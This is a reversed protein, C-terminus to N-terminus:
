SYNGERRPIERLYNTWYESEQSLKRQTMAYVTLVLTIRVARTGRRPCFSIGFLDVKQRSFRLLSSLTKM